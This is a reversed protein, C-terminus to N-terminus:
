KQSLFPWKDPRVTRQNFPFAAAMQKTNGNIKQGSLKLM